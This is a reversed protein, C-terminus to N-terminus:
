MQLHDYGPDKGIAPADGLGRPVFDQGIEM